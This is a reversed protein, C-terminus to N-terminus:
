YHGFSFWSKEDFDLVAFIKVVPIGPTNQLNFNSVSASIQSFSPKICEYFTAIQRIQLFNLIL